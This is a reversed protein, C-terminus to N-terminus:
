DRGNRRSACSIKQCTTYSAQAVSGPTTPNASVDQPATRPVIMIDVRAGGISVVIHGGVAVVIVTKPHTTNTTGSRLVRKGPVACLRKELQVEKILPHCSEANSTSYAKGAAVFLKLFACGFGTRV